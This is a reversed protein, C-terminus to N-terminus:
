RWTAAHTSGPEHPAVGRQRNVEGHKWNKRRPRGAHVVTAFCSRRIRKAYQAHWQEEPGVGIVTRLHIAHTV